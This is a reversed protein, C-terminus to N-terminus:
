KAPILRVLMVGHPNVTAEFKGDVTDLDKQRWLDRAVHKGSIKLDSWNAIVTAPEDGLNFLGVAYSGDELPRGWVQRAPLERTQDERGQRKNVLKVMQDDKWVQSAAKGLPDQNVAIVEDNGLLNITFADLNDMDCGILMPSAVLCWLSIHTYQEDPTLNSPHPRAGGWGGVHGVILMDPDNWHGPRAYKTWKDLSAFGNGTLSWWSDRIDGSTRWANFLKSQDEINEFVMSNSYSYVIDRGCDRLAQAMTASQKLFEEASTPPVTQRPNWDYKLYDIGWAAWQKADNAAFVYQGNERKRRDAEAPKTWTGDPNNASGGVYAAYSTVWPTSYIGVKLGMAHIEDCLGKMNPFKENPQIANFEGGRKFQWADDINIYTWGHNVLGSKVMAKASALVKEQDVNPGWCNWSNWGLPPTLALTDGIVIKFKKMNSGRANRATLTVGYEGAKEVVGRIRGNSSDIKLGSPLGDASFTMPREGTAPVTYLFPAGPRQGYISPGNIRPTAPPLPTLIHASLDVAPRTTAQQAAADAALCGLLSM